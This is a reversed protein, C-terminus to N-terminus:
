TAAPRERAPRERRRPKCNQKRSVTTLRKSPRGVEPGRGRALRELVAIAGEVQKHEQLLEVLIEEVIM